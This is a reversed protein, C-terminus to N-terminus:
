SAAGPASRSSRAGRGCSRTRPRTWAGPGPITWFKWVEKGTKADYAGFQGRVGVEGGAVGIYVLGDHYVAPATTYGRGPPALQTKWLRAGTRQDLAVLSNDRQGSLVKGEAVVVGRSTMRGVNADSMYKWRVVGTAADIAFVNNPGSSIYMVGDVVIPTAQMGGAPNGDEVHVMWAGGLRAVNSRDIQRLTSYRQNPLNGGVVPFNRGATTWDIPGHAPLPALSPSRAASTSAARQSAQPSATEDRGFHRALYDVLAPLDGRPVVAGREVMDEVTAQWGSRTLRANAISGAGHCTQTCSAVVLDRGAGDPLTQAFAPISAAVAGAAMLMAGFGSFRM